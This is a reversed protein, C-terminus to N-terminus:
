VEAGADIVARALRRDEAEAFAFKIADPKIRSLREM